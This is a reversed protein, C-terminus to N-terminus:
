SRVQRGHSVRFNDIMLIDGKEWRNFVLNNWITDRVHTITASPISSGDGFETHMGVRDRGRAVLFFFSLLWMIISFLLFKLQGLRRWVRYYEQYFM